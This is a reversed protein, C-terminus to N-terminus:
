LPEGFRNFFQSADLPSWSFLQTTKEVEELGEQFKWILLSDREEAYVIAEIDGANIAWGVRDLRDSVTERRSGIEMEVGRKTQCTLTVM